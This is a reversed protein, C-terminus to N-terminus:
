LNRLVFFPLVYNRTVRTVIKLDILLFRAVVLVGGGGSDM